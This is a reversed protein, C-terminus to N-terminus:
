FYGKSWHRFTPPRQPYFAAAPRCGRTHHLKAPRAAMPQACHLRLCPVPRCTGFCLRLLPESFTLLPRSRALLDATWCRTWDFFFPCPAEMISPSREIAWPVLHDKITVTPSQNTSKVTIVLVFALLITRRSARVYNTNTGPWHSGVDKDYSMVSTTGKALSFFRCTRSEDPQWRSLKKKKPRIALSLTTCWPKLLFFLELREERRINSDGTMVKFKM